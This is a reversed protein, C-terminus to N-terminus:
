QFFTLQFSIDARQDVLRGYRDTVQFDLQNLSAPDIDLSENLPTGGELIEGFAANIPIMALVDHGGRISLAHRSGLRRSRLFVYDYPSVALFNIRYSKHSNLWSSTLPDPDNKLIDNCSRVNSGSVGPPWLGPMLAVEEDTYLTWWTRVGGPSYDIQLTNRTADYTSGMGGLGLATTLITGLQTANYYGVPLESYQDPWGQRGFYIYKNREDITYYTNPIRVSDVRMKCHTDLVLSQPLTVSFDSPSGGPCRDKSHIYVFTTM